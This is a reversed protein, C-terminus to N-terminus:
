ALPRRRFAEVPRTAAKKSLDATEVSRTAIEAIPPVLRINFQRGKVDTIPPLASV